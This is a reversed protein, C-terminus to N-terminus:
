FSLISILYEIIGTIVATIMVTAVLDWRRAPKQEIVDVRGKIENMDERMLRTETALTYVSETLRDVDDIRKHAQKASAEVASIRGEFEKIVEDNM